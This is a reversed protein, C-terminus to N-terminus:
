PTDTRYSADTGDGEKTATELIAWYSRVNKELMQIIRELEQERRTDGSSSASVSESEQQRRRLRRQVERSFLSDDFAVDHMM